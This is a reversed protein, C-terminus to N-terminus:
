NDIRGRNRGGVSHRNSPPGSSGHHNITHWGLAIYKKIVIVEKIGAELSVQNLMTAGCKDCRLNDLCWGQYSPALRNYSCVGWYKVAHRGPEPQLSHGLLYFLTREVAALSPLKRLTRYVFSGSDRPVTDGRGYGVFHCHPAYELADSGLASDRVVDYRNKGTSEAMIEFMARYEAKIRYPHLVLVGGTFGLSLLRRKYAEWDLGEGELVIHRPKHHTGKALFFGYVRAAARGAARRAWTRYCRPCQIQGCTNRHLEVHYGCEPCTGVVTWAEKLECEDGMGVMKPLDEPHYTSPVSDRYLGASVGGEAVLGGEQPAPSLAIGGGLPGALTGQAPSVKNSRSIITM